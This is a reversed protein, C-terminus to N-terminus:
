NFNEDNMQQKNIDQSHCNRDKEDIPLFERTGFHSKIDM